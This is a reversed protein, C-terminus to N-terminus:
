NADSVVESDPTIDAAPAHPLDYRAAQGYAINVIRQAAELRKLAELVRAKNRKLNAAVMSGSVDLGKRVLEATVEFVEDDLEQRRRDERLEEFEPDPGDDNSPAHLCFSWVDETDDIVMEAVHFKRAVGTAKGAKRLQGPRDKVVYIGSNGKMGEGFAERNEVLFGAGSLGNLKHVSGLAYGSGNVNPDKVVHDACAVAAGHRTWPKVLRRRFEAAGDPDYIKQAHLAMAENQGDLVVLSPVREACLEDIRGAPVPHEPGIFLFDDAVRQRPVLFQRTLRSVTGGPDNEEFHVYVVRNGANLEVAASALLFWTKGGETEGIVAHELGPYFFRLGDKRRAGVSTEARKVTGDLYDTLDMPTWSTLADSGPASSDSASAFPGDTVVKMYPSAMGARLGSRITPGIEQPDLGIEEAVEALAETVSEEEWFAPVFHGVLMAAANLANNRGGEGMAGAERLRNLAKDQVYTRAQEETFPRDPDPEGAPLAESPGKDTPANVELIELLWTPLEAVEADPDEAAYVFGSEHVSGAAVVYGGVREQGGCNGRVDFGFEDKLYSGKGANRVEVGPPTAFYWHWGKSTRVRYTAPVPQSYAECLKEMGDATGTDDDLFTLGSWKASLGINVPERGFWWSLTKETPKSATVTGWKIGVVPYKEAYAVPFPRWGRAAHRRAAVLAPPAEDM